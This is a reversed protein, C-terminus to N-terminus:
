VFFRAPAAVSRSQGRQTITLKGGEVIVRDDVNFLRSTNGWIQFRVPAGDKGRELVSALPVPTRRDTFSFVTRIERGDDVSDETGIRNGFKYLTFRQHPPPAAQALPAAVSAAVSAAVICGTVAAARM